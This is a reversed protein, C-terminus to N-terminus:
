WGLNPDIYSQLLEEGPQIDRLAHLYGYLPNSEYFTNCTSSVSTDSDIKHYKVIVNPDCSHNIRCITLYFATGDLPPFIRDLGEEDIIERLQPGCTSVAASQHPDEADNLGTGCTAGCTGDDCCEDEGCVVEAM